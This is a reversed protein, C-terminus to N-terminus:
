CIIEAWGKSIGLRKCKYTAKEGENQVYLYFLLSIVLPLHTSLKQFDSMRVRNIFIHLTFLNLRRHMHISIDHEHLPQMVSKPLIHLYNFIFM